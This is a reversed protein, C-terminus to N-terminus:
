NKAHILSLLLEKYLRIQLQLIYFYLIHYLIKYFILSHHIALFKNQKPVITGKIYKFIKIKEIAKEEDENFIIRSEIYIKKFGDYGSKRYFEIDYGNNKYEEVESEDIYLAEKTM